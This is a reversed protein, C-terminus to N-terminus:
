ANRWGTRVNGVLHGDIHMALFRDEEGLLSSSTPWCNCLIRSRARSSRRYERIEKTAAGINASFEIWLWWRSDLINMASSFFKERSERKIWCVLFRDKSWGQRSSELLAPVPRNKFSELRHVIDM